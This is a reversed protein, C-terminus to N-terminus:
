SAPLYAPRLIGRLQAYPITLEPQGHSYPAIVYVDYKVILGDPGLAVNDTPAFPWMKAYAAPDRRADANGELWAAHARTLAEVFQPQRGPELLDGLTLVRGAQRDWNLYRTAPIGHAGGTYVGSILEVVALSPTQRTVRARLVTNEGSRATRWYYQEFEELTRYPHVINTDLGTMAALSEDVLATLRREDPFAVSDLDIYPCEAGRCGPQTRKYQIRQTRLDSAQAPANAAAGPGPLTINAPPSSGCGALALLLAACPLAAARNFRTM